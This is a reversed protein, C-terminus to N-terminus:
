SGYKSELYHLPVQVLDFSGNDVNHLMLCGRWHKNGQPGLYDENHEYCNHHPYGEVIMTKADIAIEVIERLGLKVISVVKDNNTDPSNIRGLFEPKFKSLLRQPRIEGLFKAINTTGGQLRLQRCNRGNISYTVTPGYWIELAHRLRDLIPGENQAISLQMITGGTTIRQSLSGEGDYMGELWGAERSYNYSWEDFLKPICTGKRLTNTTKWYYKSGTKVLWRHDETVKFRKGSELLVEFVDKVRHTVAEVTGTKYRRSRKNVVEEDFSVLKDGVKIDGLPVYKLDATLVKHDPTLCSGAIISTLQSGDARHGTHMQFGQQHGAICSMHKKSLQAAASTCPRGLLGSTFYHSYAIGDIVVVDLFEHVEWGYEEYGLDKVSITGDLIADANIARNIRQEHNGLTLVFRPTYREKHHKRAKANYSWIPSLLCEMSNRAATIDARYRRGEFAKSGRDYSSLSSMDAFDGLCIIVEPKKEIIYQGVYTLYRTDHEPKVQCDPIVFHKM